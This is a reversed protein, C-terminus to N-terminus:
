LDNKGPNQYSERNPIIDEKYELRRMVNLRETRKKIAKDMVYDPSIISNYKAMICGWIGGFGIVYINPDGGVFDSLYNSMAVSFAIPLTVSTVIDLRGKISEKLYELRAKKLLEYTDDFPWAVQPPACIRNMEAIADLDKRTAREEQEEIRRM